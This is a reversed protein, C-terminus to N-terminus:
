VLKTCYVYWASASGFILVTFVYFNVSCCIEFIQLPHRIELYMYHEHNGLKLSLSEYNIIKEAGEPSYLDRVALNRTLFM